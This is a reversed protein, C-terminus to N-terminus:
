QQQHNVIDLIRIRFRAYKTGRQYLGNNIIDPELIFLVVTNYMGFKWVVWKWHSGNCKYQHHYTKEKYNFQIEWRGLVVELDFIVEVLPDSTIMDIDRECSCHVLGFVTRVELKDHIKLLFSMIGIDNRMEKFMHKFNSPIDNKVLAIVTTSVVKYLFCAFTEPSPADWGVFIEFSLISTALLSHALKTKESSSYSRHSALQQNIQAM